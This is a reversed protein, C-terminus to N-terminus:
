PRLCPMVGKVRSAYNASSITQIPLADIDARLGIRPTGAEADRSHWDCTLGVRKSTLQPSFGLHRLHQELFLTTKTERMSLEPHQHLHRRVGHMLAFSEVALARILDLLQTDILEMALTKNLMALREKVRGNNM